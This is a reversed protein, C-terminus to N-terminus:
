CNRSAHETPMSQHRIAKAHGGEVSASARPKGFRSQPIMDVTRAAGKYKSELVTKSLGHRGRSATRFRRCLMTAVSQTLNVGAQSREDHVAVCGALGTCGMSRVM